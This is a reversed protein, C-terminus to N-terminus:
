DALTRYEETLLYGNGMNTARALAYYNSYRFEASSQRLAGAALYAPGAEGGQNTPPGAARTVQATVLSFAESIARPRSDRSLAVLSLLQDRAGFTFWLERAPGGSTDSLVLPPVQRCVLDAAAGPGCDVGHAAMAALVDARRTQGLAFGLAPRSPAPATGRHSAAWHSAAEERQRPTVKRDYGLPCSGPHVARGILALLPRGARTHAFGMVGVFLALVGGLGVLARVIPRRSHFATM